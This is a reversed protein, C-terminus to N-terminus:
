RAMAAAAAPRSRVRCSMIATSVAAPYLRLEASPRTLEDWGNNVRIPGPRYASMPVWAVPVPGAGGGHGAAVTTHRWPRRRRTAVADYGDVRSAYCAEQEAQHPM